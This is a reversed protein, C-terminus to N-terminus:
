QNSGRESDMWGWAESGTAKLIHRVLFPVLDHEHMEFARVRTRFGCPGNELLLLETPNHVRRAGRTEVTRPARLFSSSM